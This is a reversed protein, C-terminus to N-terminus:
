NHDETMGLKAEKEEEMMTDKMKVTPLLPGKWVQKQENRLRIEDSGLHPLDSEQRM